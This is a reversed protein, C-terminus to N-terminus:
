QAVTAAPSHTALPTPHCPAAEAWPAGQSAESRTSGVRRGM